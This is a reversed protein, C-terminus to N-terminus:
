NPLSEPLKGLNPDNTCFYLAIYPPTHQSSPSTSIRHVHINLTVDANADKDGVIGDKRLSIQTRQDGDPISSESTIESKATNRPHEHSIAGGPKGLAIRYKNDTQQQGDNANSAGIIFRSNAPMYRVWGASEDCGTSSHVAIVAGKPLKPSSCAVLLFPSLLLYAFKYSSRM